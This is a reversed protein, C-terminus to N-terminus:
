GWEWFLLPYRGNEILCIGQPCLSLNHKGIKLRESLGDEYVYESVRCGIWLIQRDFRETGM